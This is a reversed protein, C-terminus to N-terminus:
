WSRRNRLNKFIGACSSNTSISPSTSLMHKSSSTASSPSPLERGNMDISKADKVVKINHTQRWSQVNKKTVVLRAFGGQKGKKASNEEAKRRSLPPFIKIWGQFTATVATAQNQQALLTFLICDNAVL